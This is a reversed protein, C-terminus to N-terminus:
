GRPLAPVKSNKWQRQAEGGGGTVQQGSARLSNQNEPNQEKGRGRFSPSLFFPHPAVLAGSAQPNPRPSPAKAHKLRPLRSRLCSSMRLRSSWTSDLCLWGLLGQGPAGPGEAAAQSPTQHTNGCPGCPARSPGVVKTALSREGYHPASPHTMGVSSEQGEGRGEGGM